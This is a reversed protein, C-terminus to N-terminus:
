GQTFSQNIQTDFVVSKLIAREKSQHDSEREERIKTVMDRKM